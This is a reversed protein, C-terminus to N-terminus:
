EGKPLSRSFAAKLQQIITSFNENGPPLSLICHLHDPLIVIAPLDFAHRRRVHDIANRLDDIHDTLLTQRRDLLNLTLFYM